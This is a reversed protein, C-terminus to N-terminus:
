IYQSFELKNLIQCFYFTSQKFAQTCKRYYIASNKKYHSINCVFTTSFSLVCMQYEICKERFDHRNHSLTSFYTLVMSAVFSLIIRRLFYAIQMGSLFLSLVSMCEYYKIHTAKGLYYLNHSRAHTNGFV